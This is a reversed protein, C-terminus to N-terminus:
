SFSKIAVHNTISTCIREMHVSTEHSDPGTTHLLNSSAGHTERSKPSTPLSITKEAVTTANAMRNVITIIGLQHASNGQLRVYCYGFEFMLVKFLPTREILFNRLYSRSAVVGNAPFHALGDSVQGFPDIWRNDDDVVDANVINGNFYFDMIIPESTERLEFMQSVICM